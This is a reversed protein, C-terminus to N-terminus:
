DLFEWCKISGSPENGHECAQWKDREEAVHILGHWVNEISDKRRHRPRGLPEKRLNGGGFGTHIETRGM